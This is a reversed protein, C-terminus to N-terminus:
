GEVLLYRTLIRMVEGLNPGPLFPSWEGVEAFGLRFLTQVINTVGRRSGIVLIRVAERDPPMDVTESASVTFPDPIAVSTMFNISFCSHLLLLYNLLVMDADKIISEPTSESGNTSNGHRNSGHLSACDEWVNSLLEPNSFAPPFNGNTLTRGSNQCTGYHTM